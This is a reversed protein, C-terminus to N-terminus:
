TGQKDHVIHKIHKYITRQSLEYKDSLTKAMAWCSKHGGKSWRQTAENQYKRRKKQLDQQFDSRKAEIGGKRKEETYQNNEWKM